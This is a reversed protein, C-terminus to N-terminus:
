NTEVFDVMGNVMGQSASPPRAKRMGGHQPIERLCETQTSAFRQIISRSERPEPLIESRAAYKLRKPERRHLADATSPPRWRSTNELRARGCKRPRIELPEVRQESIEAIHKSTTVGGGPAHVRKRPQCAPDIGALKRVSACAADERSRLSSRYARV